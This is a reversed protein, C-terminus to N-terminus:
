FSEEWYVLSYIDTEAHQTSAASCCCDSQGDCAFPHYLMDREEHGQNSSRFSVWGDSM